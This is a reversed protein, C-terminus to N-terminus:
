YNKKEINNKYFIFLILWTGMLFSHPEKNLITLFIFLMIAKSLLSINNLGVVGKIWWVTYFIGGLGFSSLFYTSTSTQSDVNFIFQEQMFLETSGTLGAGFFINQKFIFMNLIPASFRTITTQQEGLLKSFVQPSFNVFLIILRDYFLILLFTIIILTVIWLNKFNSKSVSKDLYLIIIPILLIIGATSFTTLVALMLILLKFKNIVKKYYIEFVLAFLLYSSFLGPEWFIGQNRFMVNSWLKPYFFIYYNYFETTSNKTSVLSNTPPLGIFIIWLSFLISVIAIVVMTDIFRNIIIDKDYKYVIYFSTFVIAWFNLYPLFYEMNAIMSLFSSLFVIFLPIVLKSLRDKKLDFILFKIFLIGSILMTLYQIVKIYVTDAVQLLYGSNAVIIIIYFISIFFGKKNKLM